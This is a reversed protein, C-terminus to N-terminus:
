VGKELWLPAFSRNQYFSEVATRQKQDAFIRDGKGALRDRMKEAIPRDAPDLSAFPDPAPAPTEIAGEVPPSPVGDSTQAFVSTPLALILFATGTVALRFHLGRMPRIPGLIAFGGLEPLYLLNQRKTGFRNRLFVRRRTTERRVSPFVM